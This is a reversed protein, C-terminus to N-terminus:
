TESAHHQGGSYDFRGCDFDALCVCRRPHKWAGSLGVALSGIQCSSDASFAVSGLELSATTPGIQPDSGPVVELIERSQHPGPFSEAVTLQLEHACDCPATESM